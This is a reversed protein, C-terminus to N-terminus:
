GARGLLTLHGDLVEGAEDPTAQDLLVSLSLGLVLSLDAVAQSRPDVRDDLAGADSAAELEAALFALLSRGNEFADARKLGVDTLAAGAFGLYILM